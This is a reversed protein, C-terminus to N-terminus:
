GLRAVREGRVSLRAASSAETLKEREAAVLGVTARAKGTPTTGKKTKPWARVAAEVAARGGQAFAKALQAQVEADPSAAAFEAAAIAYGNGNFSLSVGGWERVAALPPTDTISDGVYMVAAGELGEAAVIEELAALKQRGGVPRVADTLERSVQRQPMEAWFLRDLDRVTERDEDSLWALAEEPSSWAPGGPVGSDPGGGSAHGQAATMAEDPYSIVPRACVRPVWSRLWEAEDEPMDWADVNLETCRVHDMPFGAIDCLARLYPTYSTSIIYTPMLASISELAKLAQPVLLVQEASFLEIDEDSVYYARFFPPILRLTNGANYGPKAAVDVLFDDYKSLRAFFEAGDPVFREAIEQANDNRTLPGECDTVYIRRAADSLPAGGAGREFADSRRSKM